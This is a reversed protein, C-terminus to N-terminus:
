QCLETYEYNAIDINIYGLLQLIEEINEAIDAEDEVILIREEKM